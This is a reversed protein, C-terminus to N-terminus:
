QAEGRQASYYRADSEQRAKFREPNPALGRAELYAPRWYSLSDFLEETTSHTFTIRTQPLEFLIIAADIDEEYALYSGFNEGAAQAAASLHKRAYAKGVMFGGHSPTTVATLGRAFRTESDSRGWPTIM